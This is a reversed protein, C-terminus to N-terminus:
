GNPVEVLMVRRWNYNTLKSKFTCAKDHPMPTLNLRIHAGYNVMTPCEIVAVVNYLKM